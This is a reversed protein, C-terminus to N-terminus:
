YKGPNHKTLTKFTCTVPTAIVSPSYLCFIGIHSPMVWAALGLPPHPPPCSDLSSVAVLSVNFTVLLTIENQAVKLAHQLSAGVPAIDPLSPVSSSILNSVVVSTSVTFNYADCSTTDEITFVYHQDTIEPAVMSDTSILNVATFSFPTQIPFFWSFRLSGLGNEAITVILDPFLTIIIVVYLDKCLWCLWCSKAAKPMINHLKM